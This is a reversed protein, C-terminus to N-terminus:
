PLAARRRKLEDLAASLYTSAELRPNRGFQAFPAAYGSPDRYLPLLADYGCLNPTAQNAALKEMRQATVNRVSILDSVYSRGYVKVHNNKLLGVCNDYNNPLRYNFYNPQGRYALQQGTPAVQSDLYNQYYRWKCEQIATRTRANQIAELPATVAEQAISDRVRIECAIIAMNIHFTEQQTSKTYKEVINTVTHPEMPELFSKLRTFVKQEDFWTKMHPHQAFLAQLTRNTQEVTEFTPPGSTSIPRNTQEVTEFTPPGSKSLRLIILPVLLAM